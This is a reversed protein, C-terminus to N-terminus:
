ECIMQGLLLDNPKVLKEIFLKFPILTSIVDIFYVKRHPACYLDLYGLRNVILKGLNVGELYAHRKTKNIMYYIKRELMLAKLILSNSFRTRVIHSLAVHARYVYFQSLKGITKGHYHHGIVEPFYKVKFGKNWLALGLLYDDLYLFTEDVFPKGHPMAKKVAEVKM